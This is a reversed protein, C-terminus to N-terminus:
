SASVSEVLRLVVSGDFSQLAREWRYSGLFRVFDRAVVRPRAGVSRGSLGSDLALRATNGEHLLEILVKHLRIGAM